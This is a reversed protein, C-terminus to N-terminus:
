LQTIYRSMKKLNQPAETKNHEKKSNVKKM